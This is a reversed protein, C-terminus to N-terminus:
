TSRIMLCLDKINRPAAYKLSKIHSQFHIREIYFSKDLDDKYINCLQEVCKFVESESMTTM